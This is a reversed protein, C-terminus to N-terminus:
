DFIKSLQPYGLKKAYEAADGYLEPFENIIGICNPNDKFGLTKNTYLEFLLDLREPISLHHALLGTSDDYTINKKWQPDTVMYAVVSFRLDGLSKHVEMHHLINEVRRSHQPKVMYVPLLCLAIITYNKKM